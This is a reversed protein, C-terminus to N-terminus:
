PRPRGPNEVSGDPGTAADPRDGTVDGARAEDVAADEYAADEDPVTRGRPRERRREVGAALQAAAADRQRAFLVYSLLAAVVLAALWLLWSRMGLAYLVGVAGLVLAVRLLSYLLIRM